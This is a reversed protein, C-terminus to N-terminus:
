FASNLFDLSLKHLQHRNNELLLSHTGQGIVTLQKSKANVLKAFVQHGQLPTTEQDLEGVAIQVPCRILGPDYWADGSQSFAAFDKVVGTPARLFGNTEFHNPSFCWKIKRECTITTAKKTTLKKTKKTM